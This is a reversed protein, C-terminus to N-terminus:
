IELHREGMDAFAHFLQMTPVDADKPAVPLCMIRNVDYLKAWFRIMRVGAAKKAEPSFRPDTTEKLIFTLSDYSVAGKRIYIRDVGLLTNEPLTIKESKDDTWSFPKKIALSWLSTNRGESFLNFEWPETLRIQAGIWPVTLRIPQGAAMTTGTTKKAM